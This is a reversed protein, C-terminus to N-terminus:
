PRAPEPLSANDRIRKSQAFRSGVRRRRFPDPGCGANRNRAPHDDGAESISASDESITAVNFSNNSKANYWKALRKSKEDSLILLSHIAQFKEIKM